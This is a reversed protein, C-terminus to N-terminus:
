SYKVSFGEIENEADKFISVVEDSFEGLNSKSEEFNNWVITLPPEIWGTLCDWLADLNEGYYNPLDLVEKIKRHFDDVSKIENGELIVNM